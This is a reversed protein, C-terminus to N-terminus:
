RHPLSCVECPQIKLWHLKLRLIFIYKEFNLWSGWLMEACKLTYRIRDTSFTLSSSAYLNTSRPIYTHSLSLKLFYKESHELLLGFASRPIKFFSKLITLRQAYVHFMCKSLFQLILQQLRQRPKLHLVCLLVTLNSGNIGELLINFKFLLPM